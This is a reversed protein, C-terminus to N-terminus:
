GDENAARRDICEIWSVCVAALQVLEERRHKESSAGVIEALEEVAITGWTQQKRSAEWECSLKAEGETPMHYYEALVIPNGSFKPVVSPHDQKGHEERQCYVEYEVEKLLEDVM